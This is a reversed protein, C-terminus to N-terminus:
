HYRAKFDVNKRSAFNHWARIRPTISQIGAAKDLRWVYVFNTVPLHILGDALKLEYTNWFYALFTAGEDLSSVLM